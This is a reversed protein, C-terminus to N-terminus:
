PLHTRSGFPPTTQPPSPPRPADDGAVPNLPAQPITQYVLFVIGAIWVLPQVLHHVLNLPLGMRAMTVPALLPLLTLALLVAARVERRDGPRAHKAVRFLALLALLVVSDDYAGHYTALRSVIATVGLLPWIDAHRNRAIWVGLALYLPLLLWKGAPALGIGELWLPLHAYGQKGVVEASVHALAALEVGLSNTRFSQALVTLGAYGAATLVVPRLGGTRLMVVLFFPATLSPKVLSLLLLGAAALDRWWSPTRGPSLLFIATLAASLALIGLQGNGLTVAVPYPALLMLVVFTREWWRVAGSQQLAFRVCPALVALNVLAWLWRAASLGMWGLLPWLIIYSAPAYGAHRTETYVPLNAFWSHVEAHRFRLDVAGWPLPAAVLRWLESGLRWVMAAAMLVMLFTLIPREHESWWQRLRDQGM